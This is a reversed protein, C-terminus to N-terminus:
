AVNQLRIEEHQKWFTEWRGSKVIARFHLIHQAGNRSWRMGSGCMRRKVITKCAAEVPGSGIPLGQSVFDQYNMRSANRKFFTMESKLAALRNKGKLTKQYYKMSAIISEVARETTKLKERYKSYWTTAKQSKKGFIAEAAKSLHETAHYFDVLKLCNDYMSTNDIYSWINRAGDNLLIRPVDDSILDDHISFEREFDEKFKPFCKEPSRSIYSASLRQHGREKNGTQYQSFTGTMVNRYASKSENNDEKGPREPPRGTQEGSERLLITAGDMSAVFADTKDFVQMEKVITSHIDSFHEQTREGTENIVNTIATVSPKFLSSKQLCQAVESPSMFAAHFLVAERVPATAFEGVMGWKKDLPQHTPGGWHAQYNCRDLIVKGFPLMYEKATKGAANLRRGDVTLHPQDVDHSEIFHKTGACAAESMAASLGAFFRNAMEPTLDKDRPFDCERLMTKEFTHSFVEITAAINMRAYRRSLLENKPSFVVSYARQSCNWDTRM